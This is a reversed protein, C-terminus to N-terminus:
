DLWDLQELKDLPLAKVEDCHVGWVALLNLDHEFFECVDVASFPSLCHHGEGKRGLKDELVSEVGAVDHGVFLLFVPKEAEVGVAADGDKKVCGSGGREGDHFCGGLEEVKELKRIFFVLKPELVLKLPALRQM